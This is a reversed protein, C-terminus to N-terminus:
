ATHTSQRQPLPKRHSLLQMNCPPPYSRGMCARQRCLPVHWRGRPCLLVCGSPTPIFVQQSSRAAFFFSFFPHLPTDTRTVHRCHTCRCGLLGHRRPQHIVCLTVRDSSLPTSISVPSPRLVKTNRGSYEEPEEPNEPAAPKEPQSAPAPKAPQKKVEPKASIAVGGVSIVRKKANQKRWEEPSIGLGGGGAQPAPKAPLPPKPPAQASAASDPLPPADSM